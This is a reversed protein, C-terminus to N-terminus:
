GFYGARALAAAVASGAAWFAETSRYGDSVEYVYKSRRVTIPGRPGRALEYKEGVALADVAAYHHKHYSEMM